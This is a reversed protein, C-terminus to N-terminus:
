MYIRIYQIYIQIMNALNLCFYRNILNTCDNKEEGM